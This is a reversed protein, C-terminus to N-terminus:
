AMSLPHDAFFIFHDATLEGENRDHLWLQGGGQEALDILLNGQREQMDLDDVSDITKFATLDIRDAGYLFDSIYDNGDGPAFVFIDADPGGYMEDDDEGSRLLDNGPGGELRDSGAGGYLRDDGAGGRLLDDGGGPGGYLRDDGAGGELRNDRLDGALVDAHASGVLEEIDPVEQQQTEGRADVHEIIVTGVFRDGEADGGRAIGSHLRVTVGADSGEYSAVDVGAGGRLRDAGPGGALWDDGERGDLEDDGALGFLWNGAGTGVLIDDWGSGVLHEIDPAETEIMRGEADTYKIGEMGVFRDGEAAGGRVVGSHLYVEVGADSTQYSAFDYGAGGRLQDAGAGGELADDGMGGYLRDDGPGGELADDGAGGYLRDDGAGGRLLDDGGGPGGYLRDDGAGGELRNDRLDGALVDAHASGVLDEIDPVETEITQGESDTDEIRELGVFRDGEADGGRATGSHLRVTVGANSGEYSAVDVGPGGRLRDAGPGGALWDDGERGDLEDDGALGFLWNGAGTGVLIDDWGSGVLHEIDPVETEIMRGEADTYKIRELGVFRDGEADGGRVVGSHLYVEVGADSSRYSAFDYGAGGRLQDAGAGGELADSGAGGFLRDDGAEGRLLDAGSGPGGNLTDDGAGGELRNGRVDGILVDNHASGVLAEIDAVVVQQIEGDAGAQEVIETGIFRDGEAHGRRATGDYLRVIVGANSGAYSAIDIGAGGRLLDAGVGGLLIDAGAGGVLMDAGAGGVLWDAGGGGLLRDDGERGDLEDDGALGFLWNGAGTGVLIDDWGSGVLHEIDPVETEIMRGEADTYKIGEMGVFRDGAADGGRVVGSHLYVEVGADSSRYSAFDDGADGRLRDAGAGGLLWDDGKGGALEDNGGGGVLTDDSESGNLLTSEEETDYVVVTYAGWTQKEPNGRYSEVAIYYVGPDELFFRVRSNLNGAAHDIDDNAAVEEEGTSEVRLVLDTEAHNDTGTLSIEYRKGEVLEVRIWDKDKRGDLVGKFSGGVSVVYVTGSGAAADRERTEEVSLM